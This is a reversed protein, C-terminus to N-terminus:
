HICARPLQGDKLESPSGRGKLLVIPLHLVIFFAQSLKVSEWSVRDGRKM